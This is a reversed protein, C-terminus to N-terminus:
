VKNELINKIWNFHIYLPYAIYVHEDTQVVALMKVQDEQLM